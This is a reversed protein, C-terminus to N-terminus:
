LGEIVKAHCEFLIRKVEDMEYDKSGGVILTAIETLPRYDVGICSANMITYCILSLNNMTDIAEQVEDTLVKVVLQRDIGHEKCRELLIERKSALDFDIEFPQGIIGPGYYSANNFARRTLRFDSTFSDYLGLYAKNRKGFHHFTADQNSTQFYLVSQWKGSSADVVEFAYAHEKSAKARKTAELEDTFNKKILGAKAYYGKMRPANLFKEVEKAKIDAELLHLKGVQAQGGRTIQRYTRREEKPAYRSYVQGLATEM